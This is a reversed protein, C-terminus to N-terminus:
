PILFVSYEQRQREAKGCNDVADVQPLAFVFFSMEDRLRRSSSFVRAAQSDCKMNVTTFFHNVPSGISIEAQSCKHAGSSQRRGAVMGGVCM